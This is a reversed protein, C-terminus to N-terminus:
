LESTDSAVFIDCVRSRSIDANGALYVHMAFPLGALAAAKPTPPTSGVPAPTTSTNACAALILGFLLSGARRKANM